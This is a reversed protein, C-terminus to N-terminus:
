PASQLSPVVSCHASSFCGWRWVLRGADSKDGDGDGRNVGPSEGRPKTAHNLVAAKANKFSANSTEKAVALSLVIMDPMKNM